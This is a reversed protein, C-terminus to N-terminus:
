LSRMALNFNQAEFVMIFAENNILKFFFDERYFGSFCSLWTSLYNSVGFVRSSVLRASMYFFMVITQLVREYGGGRTKISAILNSWKEPTMISFTSSPQLIFRKPPIILTLM